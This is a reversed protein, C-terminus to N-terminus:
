DKIKVHPRGAFFSLTASSGGATTAGDSFTVAGHATFVMRKKNLVINSARLTYRDVTLTVPLSMPPLIPRSTHNIVVQHLPYYRVGNGHNDYKGFSVVIEPWKGAKGTIVQEQYRERQEALPVDMGQAPSASELSNEDGAHWLPVVVARTRETIPCTLVIFDLNLHEDSRLEFSARRIVSCDGAFWHLSLIYTGSPLPLAYEGAEDTVAEYVQREDTPDFASLRAGVVPVTGYGFIRKVTGRAGTFPWQPTTAFCLRSLFLWIILYIEVSRVSEGKAFPVRRM